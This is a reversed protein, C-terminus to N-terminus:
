TLTLSVEDEGSSGLARFPITVQVDEPGGVSIATYDLSANDVDLTAILGATEGSIFKLDREENTKTRAVDYFNSDTLRITFNGDVMRNGQHYSKAKDAGFTENHPVAQNDITVEANIIDYSSGALEFSGLVGAIPCEGSQFTQSLQVASGLVIDDESGATHSGTTVTNAGEDVASILLGTDGGDIDIYMGVDFSRAAGSEKFTIVTGNDSDITAVGARLIDAGFGSVSIKTEDSGSMTITASSAVCGRIMEAMVASAADQGIARHFTLPKEFEKALTYVVSTSANVTETGFVSELIDDWGDPPTGAAGSPLLYGEVSWQVEKRRQIRKLLSRTNRKDERDVREITQSFNCSLFRLANTAAPASAAAGYTTEPVVFLREERGLAVTM